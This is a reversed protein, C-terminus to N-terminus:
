KEFLNTQVPKRSKRKPAPDVLSRVGNMLWKPFIVRSGEIIVGPVLSLRDRKTKSRVIIRYMGKGISVANM